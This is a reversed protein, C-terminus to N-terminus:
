GQRIRELWTRVLAESLEFEPTMLGAIVEEKFQQYHQTATQDGFLDALIALALQAPGSGAYGWEFGTPSHQRLDLRPDLDREKGDEVVVVRTNGGDRTGVYKRM